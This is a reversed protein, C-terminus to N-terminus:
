QRSEPGSEPRSEPGSEPRSEPGSQPRSEPLSKPRAAPKRRAQLAEPNAEFWRRYAACREAIEEPTLDVTDAPRAEAVTM